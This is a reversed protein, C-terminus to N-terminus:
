HEHNGHADTEQKGTSKSPFPKAYGRGVHYFLVEQDHDSMATLSIGADTLFARAANALARNSRFSTHRLLRGIAYGLTELDLHYLTPPTTPTTTM